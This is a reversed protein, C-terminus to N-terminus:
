WRSNRNVLALLASAVMAFMDTVVVTLRNRVRVLDSYLSDVGESNVM